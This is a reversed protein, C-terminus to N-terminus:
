RYELARVLPKKSAYAIVVDRVRQFQKKKAIHITIPSSRYNDTTIKLYGRELLSPPKMLLEAIEQRRIEFDRKSGLDSTTEPKHRAMIRDPLYPVRLALLHFFFPLFLVLLYYPSSIPTYFQLYILLAFIPVDVALSVMLPLRRKKIGIIRM